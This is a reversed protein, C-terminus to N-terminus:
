VHGGQRRRPEVRDDLGKVLPETGSTFGFLYGQGGAHPLKQDNEVAHEFM